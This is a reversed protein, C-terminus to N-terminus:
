LDTKLEKDEDEEEDVGLFNMLGNFQNQLNQTMAIYLKRTQAPADDQMSEHRVKEYLELEENASKSALYIRVLAGYEATREWRYFPNMTKARVSNLFQEETKKERTKDFELNFKWIFYKIHDQNKVKKLATFINASM